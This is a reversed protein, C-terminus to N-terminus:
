CVDGKGAGARVGARLRLGYSTRKRPKAPSIQTQTETQTETTKIQNTMLPDESPSNGDLAFPKLGPCSKKSTIWEHGALVAAVLGALGVM